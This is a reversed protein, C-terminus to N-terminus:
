SVFNQLINNKHINIIKKIRQFDESGAAGDRMDMRIQANGIGMYTVFAPSSLTSYLNSPIMMLFLAIATVFTICLKNNKKKEEGLYGTLATVATM